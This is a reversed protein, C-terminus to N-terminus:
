SLLEALLVGAVALLGAPVSEALLAVLLAVRAILAPLAVLLTAAQAFPAALLLLPALVAAAALALEAHLAFVALPTSSATTALLSLLPM